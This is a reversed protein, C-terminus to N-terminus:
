GNISVKTFLYHGSQTTIGGQYEFINPWFRVDLECQREM